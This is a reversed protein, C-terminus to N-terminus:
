GLFPLHLGVQALRISGLNAERNALVNAKPSRNLEQLLSQERVSVFEKNKHNV